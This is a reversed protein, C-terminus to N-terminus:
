DEFGDLLIAPRRPPRVPAKPPVHGVHFKHCHPCRYANCGRLGRAVMRAAVISAFAQKGDCQASRLTAIQPASM